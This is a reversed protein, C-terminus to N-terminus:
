NYSAYINEVDIDNHFYSMLGMLGMLPFVNNIPDKINAFSDQHIVTDIKSNTKMFKANIGGGISEGWLVVRNYKDCALRYIIELSKVCSDIGVDRSDSEGYGFYDYMLLDFNPAIIDVIKDYCGLSDITGSTGHSFLICGCIDDKNKGKVIRYSIGRYREYMNTNTRRPLFYLRERRYFMFMMLIFCVIMITLLLSGVYGSYGSYLM